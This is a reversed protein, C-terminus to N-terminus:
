DQRWGKRRAKMSWVWVYNAGSALTTALTGWVLFDLLVQPLPYPGANTVVLLVLLIQLLTNLKSILSPSAQLNEV